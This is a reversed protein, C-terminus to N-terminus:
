FYETWAEELQELEVCPDHTDWLTERWFYTENGGELGSALSRLMKNKCDNELRKAYSSVSLGRGSFFGDAWTPDTYFVNGNEDMQVCWIHSETDDQEDTRGIQGITRVGAMNCMLSYIAAYSECVGIKNQIARYTDHIEMSNDYDLYNCVWDFIVKAKERSSMTNTILLEDNLERVREECFARIGRIHEAAEDMSEAEGPCISVRIWNVRGNEDYEYYWECDYVSAYEPMLSDTLDVGELVRQDLVRRPQGTGNKRLVVKPENNLYMYMFLSAYDRVSTSQNIGTVHGDDLDDLRSPVLEMRKERVANDWAEELGGDGGSALIQIVARAKLIEDGALYEVAQGRLSSVIQERQEQVGPYDEDAIENIYDYAQVYMGSEYSKSAAIFSAQVDILHEAVRRQEQADMFSGLLVYLQYAEDYRQEDMYEQATQYLRRNHAEQGLADADRYGELADFCAEAQGYAGQNMQYVAYQYRFFPLRVAGVAAAAIIVVGIIGIVFRKKM